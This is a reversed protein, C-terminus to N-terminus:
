IKINNYFVIAVTIYCFLFLASIIPISVKICTMAKETSIGTASRPSKQVLKLNELDLKSLIQLLFVSFPVLLGFILFVDIFKIYATQPLTQSISQYM